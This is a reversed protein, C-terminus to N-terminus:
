VLYRSVLQEVRAIFASRDDPTGRAAEFNDFARELELAANAPLSREAAAFLSVDELEMHATLFADFEHAISIFHRLDEADWESSQNAADSLVRMLYREHQHQGVVSKLPADNWDFGQEVLIPLLITEEKDHHGLDVYDRFFVVFERLDRRIVEEGVVAREVLATFGALVRRILAHEGRLADFPNM